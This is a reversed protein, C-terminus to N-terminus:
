FREEMIGHTIPPSGVHQSVTAEATHRPAAVAAGVAFSLAVAADIKRSAKEKALRWGRPTEVVVSNLIQQRLDPTPYCRLRREKVVDFLAQSAQTLNTTTQPLERMRVGARSLEQGSRIMQSPDFTVHLHRFRRALDLVYREVTAELDLTGGKPPTWIRHGLVALLGSDDWGVCVVAACDRKTAADVGAFARVAGDWAPPDYEATCADWDEATLFAEEGAQWVNLHLRNYTGPRLSARQEEYYSDREAPDGLWAREQAEEGQDIFAWLKGAGFIPLEDSLREGALARSWMPELIPSDGTFGAYSDVIRLSRRNPIPTLEEWLRIHNEYRFAWLETWSSVGFIAGAAGAFDASLAVIRSGIKPFVIESKSVVAEGSRELGQARCQKAIRDFVRDQAQVLDNAVVFTLEGPTTITAFMTAEADLETKGAKKCTSILYTEFRRLSGDPPFMADLAARQWPSLVIRKGTEPVVWNAEVWAVASLRGTM